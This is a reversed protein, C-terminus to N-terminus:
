LSYPIPWDPIFDIISSIIVPTNDKMFLIGDLREKVIKDLKEDWITYSELIGDSLVFNYEVDWKYVSVSSDDCAYVSIDERAQIQECFTPRQELSEPDPEYWMWVQEEIYSLMDPFSVSAWDNIYLMLVESFKPQNAINISDVYLVNNWKHLVVTLKLTETETVNLIKESLIETQVRLRDWSIPFSWRVRLRNTMAYYPAFLDEISRDEKEMTQYDEDVKVIGTTTLQSLLSSKKYLDNENYLHNLNNIQDLKFKLDTYGNKILYPALKDSNFVYVLDKYIPTLYMNRGKDKEVVAQLYTLYTKVYNENFSTGDLFKYVSQLASLLKYANLDPDDYVKDSLDPQWLSNEIDIFNVVKKYFQSKEAGCYDMLTTLNESTVGARLVYDQVAVCLPEVDKRQSRLQKILTLM